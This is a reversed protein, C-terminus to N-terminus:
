EDSKEIAGFPCLNVGGCTEIKEQDVIEAKGDTDIKVADPCSQFCVRCGTCNQKNVKYM